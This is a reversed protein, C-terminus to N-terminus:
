GNTTVFYMKTGHTCKTDMYYLESSVFLFEACLDWEHKMDGQQLIDIFADVSTGKKNVWQLGSYSM